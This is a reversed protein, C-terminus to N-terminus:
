GVSVTFYVQELARAFSASITLAVFEDTDTPPPNQDIGVTWGSQISGLKERELLRAKVEAIVAERTQNNVQRIGIINEEAWQTLDTEIGHITRVYKPQRYILYPKTTDADAETQTWTTLGTKVHVPAEAHSDRALAVVGEDFATELEDTTAGVTLEVGAFRAHTLSQYEGRAALIGGVRAALENTALTQETGGTGLTSDTVTGIGVNLINPSACYTGSRTAATSASEGASGGVVTFFRNGADNQDDTWTAVSTLIGQGTGDSSPLAYAVFVAFDHVEVADLATTWEGSTVGGYSGAAGDNGSTFASASVAALATGSTVSGATVWDSNDNIQAALDTIDTDAYRYRELETTGDLLILENYASDGAYNQTTVRLDNGRTGEYVATLTIAAAASTNNLTKAAKAASSTGFRYCVVEGAGGRGALGEGIFAQKVARYGNTDDSSGFIDQFEAFSSVRVVEELPGWDHTFPIAVASGPSAAVTSVQQNQFNFYAGPLTPRNAKSFIGGM